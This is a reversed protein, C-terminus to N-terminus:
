DGICERFWPICSELGKRLSVQPNWGLLERARTINPCRRKPDDRHLMPSEITGAASGTMDLILGALEAVTFEAPNGLNVPGEAESNALRILGDVLDSVYCFSRTQQGGGYLELPRGQLARVIFNSVVRGDDARMRPGYTNFIRAIRVPLRYKRAYATSLAEAYRKGEDYVSRPGNINVNGTYSEEQPHVEPDGYVESTSAQVFTAGKHLALELLNLTGESCVRMIEIPVRTFDVPSAPCALNVVYDVPGQVTIPDCVDHAIVQCIDPRELDSANRRTGTAFNDLIVVASGEQTLRKALHYGIFGAGGAIVVRQRM